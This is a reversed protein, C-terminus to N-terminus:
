QTAKKNIRIFNQNAYLQWSVGTNTSTFIDFNFEEKGLNSWQLKFHLTKGNPLTRGTGSNLNTLELTTGEMKGEYLDLRGNGDDIASMRYVKDFVDFTLIQHMTYSAGSPLEHYALIKIGKDTFIPEIAARNDDNVFTQGEATPMKQIIRWDGILALFPELPTPALQTDEASVSTTILVTFVLFFQKFTM